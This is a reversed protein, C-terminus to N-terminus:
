FKVGDGALSAFSIFIISISIELEPIGGGYVEELILTVPAELLTALLSVISSALDESVINEPRFMGSAYLLIKLGLPTSIYSVM